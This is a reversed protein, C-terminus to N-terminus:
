NHKSQTMINIGEPAMLFLDGQLRKISGKLAYVAGSLFQLIKDADVPKILGLNVICAEKRRLCEVLIKIDKNDKPAYIILNKGGLGGALGPIQATLENPNKFENVVFSNALGNDFNNYKENVAANKDEVVPNNKKKSNDGFGLGKMFSNFLGM